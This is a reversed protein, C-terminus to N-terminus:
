TTVTADAQTNDFVRCILYLTTSIIVGHAYVPINTSTGNKLQTDSKALILIM